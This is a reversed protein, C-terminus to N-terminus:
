RRKGRHPVWTEARVPSEQVLVLSLARHRHPHPHPRREKAVRPPPSRWGSRASRRRSTLARTPIRRSWSRVGTLADVAVNLPVDFALVTKGSDGPQMPFTNLSDLDFTADFDQAYYKGDIELETEDLGDLPSAGTNSVSLEVAVFAGKAYVPPEFSDAPKIIRGLKTKMVQVDMTPAHLTHDRNVVTRTDTARASAPLKATVASAGQGLTSLIANLLTTPQYIGHGEADDAHM